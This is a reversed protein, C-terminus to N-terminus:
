RAFLTPAAVCNIVARAFCYPTEKPLNEIGGAAASLFTPPRILRSLGTIATLLLLKQAVPVM